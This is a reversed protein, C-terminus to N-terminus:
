VKAPFIVALASFYYDKVCRLGSGTKAVVPGGCSACYHTMARCMNRTKYMDETCQLRAPILAYMCVYMCAYM